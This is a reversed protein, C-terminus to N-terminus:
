KEQTSQLVNDSCSDGFKNSFSGSLRVTWHSRSAVTFAVPLLASQSSMVWLRWLLHHKEEPLNFETRRDFEVTAKQALLAEALMM